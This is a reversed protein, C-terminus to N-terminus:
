RPFDKGARSIHGAIERAISTTLATPVSRAMADSIVQIFIVIEETTCSMIFMTLFNDMANAIVNINTPEIDLEAILHRALSFHLEEARIWNQSIVEPEVSLEQYHKKMAARRQSNRWEIGKATVLHALNEKLWTPDFKTEFPKRELESM